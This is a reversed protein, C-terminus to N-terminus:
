RTLGCVKLCRNKRKRDEKKVTKNQEARSTLTKSRSRTTLSLSPFMKSGSRVLVMLRNRACSAADLCISSRMWSSFTFVFVFLPFAEFLLCIWPHSKNKKEGNKQPAIRIQAQERKVRAQERKFNTQTIVNFAKTSNTLDLIVSCSYM